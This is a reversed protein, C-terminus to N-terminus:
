LKVNLIDDNDNDVVQYVTNLLLLPTAESERNLEDYTTKGYHNVRYREELKITDVFVSIPFSDLPLM